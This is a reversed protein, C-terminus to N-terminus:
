PSRAQNSKSPKSSNGPQSSPSPASSSKSKEITEILAAAYRRAIKGLLRLSVRSGDAKRPMSATIKQLIAESLEEHVLGMTFASEIGSSM